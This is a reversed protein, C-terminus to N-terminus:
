TVSRRFIRSDVGRDCCDRDRDHEACAPGGDTRSRYAPRWIMLAPRRVQLRAAAPGHANSCRSGSCRAWSWCTSRDHWRCSRQGAKIYALAAREFDGAGRRADARCERALQHASWRKDRLHTQDFIPAGGDGAVESTLPGATTSHKRLQARVQQAPGRCRTRRLRGAVIRKSAQTSRRSSARAAPGDARHGEGRTMIGAARSM